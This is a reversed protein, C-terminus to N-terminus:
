LFQLIVNCHTHLPHFILAMKQKKKQIWDVVHPQPIFVSANSILDKGKQLADTPYCSSELGGTAKVRVGCFWDFRNELRRKHKIRKPSLLSKIRSTLYIHPFRLSCMFLFHKLDLKGSSGLIPIKTLHNTTSLIEPFPLPSLHPHTRGSQSLSAPSTQGMDTLWQSHSGRPSPLCVDGNSHSGDAKPFKRSSTTM